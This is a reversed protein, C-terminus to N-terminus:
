HPPHENKNRIISCSKTTRKRREDQTKRQQREKHQDTKVAQTRSEPRHLTGLAPMSRTKKKKEAESTGVNPLLKGLGGFGGM